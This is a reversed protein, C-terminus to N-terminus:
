QVKGNGNIGRIGEKAKDNKTHESEGKGERHTAETRIRQVCIEGVTQSYTAFM